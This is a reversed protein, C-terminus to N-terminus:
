RRSRAWWITCTISRPPIRISSQRLRNLADYLYTITQGKRDTKQTLPHPSCKYGASLPAPSYKYGASLKNDADYQYNESLSSPFNTQTVRGFADYTFNTTHSNADTIGTLNSETDYAYYTVHSAADTVSTLRDADDYAYGTTKGNQDTVSTRRARTDYAFSSTTSDPYTITTLRSMADYAFQTQHSLADTIFFHLKRHVVDFAGGTVCRSLHAVRFNLGAEFSAGGATGVPELGTWAPIRQDATNLRQADIVL